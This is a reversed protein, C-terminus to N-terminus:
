QVLRYRQKPSRLKETREVQQDAILTKLARRITEPHVGLVEALERISATGSESIHAIIQQQVSNTASTSTHPTVSTQAQQRKEFKPFIESLDPLPVQMAYIAATFKRLQEQFNPDLLLNTATLNKISELFKTNTELAPIQKTLREATELWAEQRSSNAALAQQIVQSNFLELNRVPKNISICFRRISNHITPEPLGANYLESRIAQYGSGRNEAVFGREFPTSELLVSLAQNRTATLSETGLTSVTINGYLGGPNIIEIRDEYLNIQIQGGRSEPSYDRHMLANVVAERIAELPYTPINQRYGDKILAKSGAYRAVTKLTEDLMVSISGDLSHNATFRAAGPTTNKDTGPYQTITINLRPFFQQPYSGLALLGALTPRFQQKDDLAIVNLRKLAEEDTLQSFNRPKLAREHKLLAAILEQDLDALSAEAVIERDWQPQKSNEILRNIEYESLKHDGDGLRTYSGGYRGQTAVYCPKNNSTAEPIWALVLKSEEFVREEIVAQVPPIMQNACAHEMANRISLANFNPTTKFGSSEDLGLIILGGETNSFASISHPIGKPLKQSAAKAEVLRTDAALQRLENIIAALDEDSPLGNLANMSFM